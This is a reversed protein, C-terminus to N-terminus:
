RVRKMLRFSLSVEVETFREVEARFEPRVAGLLQELLAPRRPAPPRAPSRV